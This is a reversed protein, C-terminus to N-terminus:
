CSSSPLRLNGEPRATGAMAVDYSPPVVPAIAATGDDSVTLVGEYFFNTAGKGVTPIIDYFRIVGQVGEGSIYHICGGAIEAEAAPSPCSGTPWIANFAYLTEFKISKGDLTGDFEERGLETSFDFGNMARCNFHQAFIALCGALSGSLEIALDPSKAAGCDSPVSDGSVTITKDDALAPNTAAWMAAVLFVPTRRFSAAYGYRRM